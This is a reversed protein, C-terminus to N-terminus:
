EAGSRPSLAELVADAARESGGPPGLREAVRALGERMREIRPPSSLLAEWEEELRAANVAGQLLEPGVESGAVINVLSIWPVRVLLKGVAFSARSTKYVVVMPAACLAAELTATGSAVFCLDATAMLDTM